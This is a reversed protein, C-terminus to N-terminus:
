WFFNHIVDVVEGSYIDVLLADNWYRVWETGPPPYPLSYMAPDIWYQQGYYAPVMRYGINFPQYGYGFPDFYVGIRFISRHSDRYRRWDYRRDNRWDRNWGGSAWRSRDRYQSQVGERQNNNVVLPNQTRMVNPEPRDGQRLDGSRAWGNQTRTWIGPGRSREPEANDRERRWGGNQQAQENPETRAGSFGNRGGRSARDFTQEQPLVQQPAANGREFRSRDFGRSGDQVQQQRVFNGGISSREARGEDRVQQREVHAQGRDGQQQQQPQQQNRHWRGNDQDQALAPSAAVSALLISFLIKRM